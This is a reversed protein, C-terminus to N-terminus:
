PENNSGEVKKRIGPLMSDIFAKARNKLLPRQELLKTVTPSLKYYVKIIEQGELTKSLVNDRYERLLETQESNEGYIAEAACHNDNCVRAPYGYWKPTTFGTSESTYCITFNNACQDFVGERIYIREGRPTYYEYGMLMEPANGLFYAKTLSTCSNFAGYGIRTVSDPVTVSTLGSCRYFAEDGISTVGDGITVSTLSACGSFTGSGISTVSDPITFDGSKAHPYQILVTKAKDYLVGDQSSYATNNADVVISTLSTCGYFAWYGINTVSNGITVSTLSTCDWFAKNGISTVSDPITISTLSSCGGFANNGISTVSDPITISIL